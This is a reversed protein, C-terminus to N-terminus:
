KIIVLKGSFSKESSTIKWPYIGNKFTQLKIQDSNSVSKSMLLKGNLDFLEFHSEQNGATVEINIFDSAPNPYIKVASDHSIEKIDVTGSYFYIARSTGIWENLYTDLNFSAATDILGENTYIYTTKLVTKWNQLNNDWTYGINWLTQGKENFQQETKGGWYIDAFGSWQLNSYLILYDNFDWGSEYLTTIRWDNKEEDWHSNSDLIYRGESDFSYSLKKIKLWENRETNWISNIHLILRNQTDWNYENKEAYQWDSIESNWVYHIQETVKGSENYTYESKSKGSKFEWENKISNWLYIETFELNGYQDYNYKEKYNYIWNGTTDNWVSETKSLEKKGPAFEKETKFSGKWRNSDNNWWYHSMLVQNLDNDYKNELKQINKWQSTESDWNLDIHLVLLKNVDWEKIERSSNKWDNIETDWTLITFILEGNEGTSHENKSFYIWEESADIWLFGIETILNGEESFIKETKQTGRWKNDNINWIFSAAIVKNGYDDFEFTEKRNGNWQNLNNDWFFTTKATIREKEDYLTETKTNKVLEKTSYDQIYKIAIETKEDNNYSYNFEDKASVKIPNGIQNIYFEKKILRGNNDYKVTTNPYEKWTKLSDVWLAVFWVTDNANQIIGNKYKGTRIWKSQNKDFAEYIFSDPGISSENEFVLKMNEQFSKNLSNKSQIIESNSTQESIAIGSKFQNIQSNADFSSFVFLFNFTILKFLIQLTLKKM